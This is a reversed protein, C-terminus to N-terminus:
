LDLCPVSVGAPIEAAGRRYGRCGASPRALCRWALRRSEGSAHTHEALRPQYERHRIQKYLDLCTFIEIVSSHSLTSTEVNGSSPRITTSLFSKWTRIYIHICIYIYISLYISLYILLYISRYISLYISLYISRYTSLRVSLYVYPYFHKRQQFVAPHDDIFLEELHTYIHTYIYISLYISLYIM